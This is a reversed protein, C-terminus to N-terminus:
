LVLSSQFLLYVCPLYAFYDPLFRVTVGETFYLKLSKTLMDQFFYQKINCFSHLM